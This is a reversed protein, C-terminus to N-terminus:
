IRRFVESAIYGALIAGLAALLGYLFPHEISYDYLGEALGEKSVKVSNNWSSILKGNNSLLFSKVNYTGTPTIAPLLFETRFLTEGLVDINSTTQYLGRNKYFTKLLNKYDDINNNESLNTNIILNSWGIQLEELISDDISDLNDINSASAFYGPADEFVMENNGALWAGWFKEKKRIKLHSSPGLVNIILISDKHLKTDIAGYIVIKAGDFSATINIDKDVIDALLPERAWSPYIHFIFVFIFICYKM